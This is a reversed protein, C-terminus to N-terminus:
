MVGSSTIGHTLRRRGGRDFQDEAKKLAAQCETTAGTMARGETVHFLSLGTLSPSAPRTVEAAQQALRVVPTPNKEGTM